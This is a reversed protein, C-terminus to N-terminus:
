NGSYTMTMYRSPYHCFNQDQIPTVRRMEMFKLQQYLGTCFSLIARFKPNHDCYLLYILDSGSIGTIQEHRQITLDIYEADLSIKDLEVHKDSVRLPQKQFQDYVTNIM